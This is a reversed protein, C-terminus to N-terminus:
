CAMTEHRQPICFSERRRRHSTSDHCRESVDGHRHCMRRLVDTLTKVETSSTTVTEDNDQQAASGSAVGDSGAHLLLSPQRLSVARHKTNNLIASLTLTVLSQSQWPRLSYGPAM